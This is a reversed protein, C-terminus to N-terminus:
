QSQAEITITQLGPNGAASLRILQAEIFFSRQNMGAFTGPGMPCVFDEEFGNTPPRPTGTRTIDSDFRAVTTGDEIGSAVRKVTVIVRADPGNDRFGVTLCRPVPYGRNDPAAYLGLVPLVNFRLVAQIPYALGDQIAAAGNGGFRILEGDGDDPMGTAGVTTWAM